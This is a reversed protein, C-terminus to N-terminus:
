LWQPMQETNTVTARFRSASYTVVDVLSNIAPQLLTVTVPYVSHSHTTSGSVTGPYVSFLNVQISLKGVIVASDISADLVDSIIIEIDSNKERKNITGTTAQM